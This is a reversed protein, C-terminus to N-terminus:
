GLPPRAFAHLIGMIVAGAFFGAVYLLPTGGLASVFLARFWIRGALFVAALVFCAAGGLILAFDRARALRYANPNM